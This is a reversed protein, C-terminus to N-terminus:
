DFLYTGEKGEESKFVAELSPFRTLVIKEYDLPEESPKRPAGGGSMLQDALTKPDKVSAFGHAKLLIFEHIESTGEYIRFVRFDRLLREVDYDRIYGNGGHIQLADDVVHWGVESNYLKAKSVVYNVLGKAYLKGFRKVPGLQDEPYKELASTLLTEGRSYKSLAYAAEFAYTRMKKIAIAMGDLKTKVGPFSIIPRKFQVRQQAYEHALQYAREALAVSQFAVGMRMGLLRELVQEYGQGADGLLNERPVIVNFSLVGTASSHLGLKEELRECKVGPESDDDANPFSSEVLFASTGEERGNIINKALVIGLDAFGANSIFIKQGKIIFNEGDFEATTKVNKLNSGAEPETFGVYGGVEGKKLLPFYKDVLYQTPNLAIAEVITAGLGLTVSFSADHYAVIEMTPGLILPPFGLGDYEEPILAEYLQPGQEKVFANYAEQVGPPFVARGNELKVGIEDWEKVHPAIKDEAVERVLDLFPFYVEKVDEKSVGKLKTAYKLLLEETHKKQGIYEVM